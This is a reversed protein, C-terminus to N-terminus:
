LNFEETILGTIAVTSIGASVVFGVSCIVSAVSFALVLMGGAEYGDAIRALLISVVLWIATAGWSVGLAELKKREM